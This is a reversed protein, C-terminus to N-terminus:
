PAIMKHDGFVIRMKRKDIVKKETTSEKKRKTLFNILTPFINVTGTLQRSVVTFVDYKILNNIETMISDYWSNGQKKNELQCVKRM